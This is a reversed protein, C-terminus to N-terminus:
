RKSFQFSKRAKKHGYKKREVVRSDRRLLLAKKLPARNKEAVLLLARSIGHSVADAQASVGGGRVNVNINFKGEAEVVGLPKLAIERYNDPFYENLPRSNVKMQGDGNQLYVRAISTKRKGVSHYVQAKAM